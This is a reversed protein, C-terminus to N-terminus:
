SLEINKPTDSSTIPVLKSSTQKYVKYHFLVFILIESMIVHCKKYMSLWGGIIGILEIWDLNSFRFLFIIYYTLSTVLVVSTVYLIRTYIKQYRGKMEESSHTHDLLDGYELAKTNLYSTLIPITIFSFFSTFAVMPVIYYPTQLIEFYPIAPLICSVILLILFCRMTITLFWGRIISPKLSKIFKKNETNEVYKINEKNEEKQSSHLTHIKDKSSNQM